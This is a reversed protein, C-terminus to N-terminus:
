GYVRARRFGQTRDHGDALVKVGEIAADGQPDDPPIIRFSPPFSGFAWLVTDLSTTFPLGLANTKHTSGLPNSGRVEVTCLSIRLIATTRRHEFEQLYAHERHSLTSGVLSSSTVEAM